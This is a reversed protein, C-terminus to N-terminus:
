LCLCMVLRNRTQKVLNTNAAISNKTHVDVNLPDSSLDFKNMSINRIPSSYIFTIENYLKIFIMNLQFNNEVLVYENSIIKSKFMQITCITIQDCGFHLKAITFSSIAQNLPTKHMNLAYIIHMM